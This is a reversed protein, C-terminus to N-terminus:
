KMSEYYVFVTGTPLFVIEPRRPSVDRIVVETLFVGKVLKKITM